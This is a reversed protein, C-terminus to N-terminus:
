RKGHEKEEKAKLKMFEGFNADITYTGDVSRSGPGWVGDPNVQFVRRNEIKELFIVDQFLAPLEERASGGILPMVGVGSKARQREGTKPDQIEGSMEIYHSAFVVHVKLDFLRRVVNLLRQRFEPWYRRGDPKREKNDAASADRLAGELYSAYLSFDDVFVWKFKNAKVGTRAEGISADMDTEDRIVDYEFNKTRRAAPAMGTKDGCCVVYGPGFTEVLSVICCTSKGQKPGGLILARLLLLRGIDSASQPM